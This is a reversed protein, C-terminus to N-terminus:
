GELQDFSQTPEVDQGLAASIGEAAAKVAAGLEHLRDGGKREKPASVALSALIRGERNRIPAAAGVIDAEFEEDELAYGQARDILIQEHLTRPNSVVTKPADWKFRVRAFKSLIFDQNADMLVARGASCRHAPVTQGVWGVARFQHDPPSVSHITLLGVGALVCLHSTEGTEASFAELHPGGIQILNRDIGRTALLFLGYGLRYRLTVPDREVFGVKELAHLARSVQSKDRGTREALGMVGLGDGTERESESLATLLAM